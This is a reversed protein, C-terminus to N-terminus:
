IEQDINLTEYIRDGADPYLAWRFAPHVEWLYGFDVFQNSLYKNEEFYRRDIIESGELKKRAVLFNIKYLFAALEQHSAVTSKSFLFPDAGQIISIKRLLSESTYIFAASDRRERNSPKMGLLLREIGPLESRYENVTDQLREQSYYDFNDMWDETTIREHDREHASRAALTCLKVLDRPRRRIMSALVKHIPVNSWNGFGHFNSEFVNNYFEAIKFQPMKILQKDSINKGEYSAIRKALMALIQHQTWSYWIVSGEIKDTSEDSTRVLFYVDSRLSIRICIGPNDNTLDRAANLLASIRQIGEANGTWGRDLDDIYVYIRNNSLYSHITNIAVTETSIKDELVKKFVDTLKSILKGSFNLLDNTFGDQTINLNELVKRFIIESLGNKWDRIMQLLNKNNNCLEMIDDPRIWVVVKKKAKNEEYSIKFTASKGIGKHGVLIRLPLDNHIHDYTDSKFYYEKLRDIDEDEAAESGFLSRINSETFISM